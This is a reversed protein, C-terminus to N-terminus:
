NISRSNDALSLRIYSVKIICEMSDQLISMCIPVLHTMPKIIIVTERFVWWSQTTTFVSCCTQATLANSFRPEGFIGVIDDLHLELVSDIKEHGFTFKDCYELATKFKPVELM